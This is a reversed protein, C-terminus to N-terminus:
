NQCDTKLWNEALIALDRLEVTKSNNLDAGYCWSPPACNTNSWRRSFLAFDDFNVRNSGNIDAGGCGTTKTWLISLPMALDHLGSSTQAQVNNTGLPVNALVPYYFPEKYAPDEPIDNMNFGVIWLTGSDPDETIGTVHHMDNITITRTLTLSTKTSFGFIISDNSDDPNYQASGLYLMDTGSSMYM